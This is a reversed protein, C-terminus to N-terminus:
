PGQSSFTPYNVTQAKIRLHPFITLTLLLFSLFFCLCFMGAMRPNNALRVATLSNLTTPVMGTLDNNDMNLIQLFTFAGVKTLDFVQAPLQGTISNNSLSLTVLQKNKAKFLDYTTKQDPFM